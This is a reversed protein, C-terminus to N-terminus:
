SNQVRAAHLFEVDRFLRWTYEGSAREELKRYTKPSSLVRGVQKRESAPRDRERRGSSVPLILIFLSWRKTKRRPSDLQTNEM